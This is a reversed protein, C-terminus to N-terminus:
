RSLPSRISRSPSPKYPTRRPTKVVQSSSGGCPRKAGGVRRRIEVVSHVAGVGGEPHLVNGDDRPQGAEIRGDPALTLGAEEERHRAVRAELSEEGLDWEEPRDGVTLIRQDREAAHRLPPHRAVDGIAVDERRLVAAAQRPEQDVLALDPLIETSKRAELVAPVNGLLQGQSGVDVSHGIVREKAVVGHRQLRAARLEHRGVDKQRLAPRREVQRPVDEPILIQGLAARHRELPQGLDKEIAGRLGDRPQGPKEVLEVGARHVEHAVHAGFTPSEGRQRQYRPGGADGVHECDGGERAADQSAVGLRHCAEAGSGSCTDDDLIGVVICQQPSQGDQSSVDLCAGRPDILGAEHADVRQHM